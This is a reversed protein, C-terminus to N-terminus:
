YLFLNKLTFRKLIDKPTLDVTYESLFLNYYKIFNKSIIHNYIIYAYYLLIACNKDHIM